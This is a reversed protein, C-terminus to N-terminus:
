SDQSDSDSDTGDADGGSDTGDADGGTDGDTGDSDGGTDGDTGDADKTDPDALMTSSGSEGRQWTTRIDEDKLEQPETM